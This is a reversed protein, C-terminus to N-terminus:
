QRDKTDPPPGTVVADKKYKRLLDNLAELVLQQLPKETEAALMKLTKLSSVSLRTQLYRLDGDAKPAPEAAKPGLKRAM